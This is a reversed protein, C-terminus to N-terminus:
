GEGCGRLDGGVEGADPNRHVNLGEMKLCQNREIEAQPCFGLLDSCLFHREPSKLRGEVLSLCFNTSSCGLKGWGKSFCNELM